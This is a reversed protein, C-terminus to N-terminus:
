SRQSAEIEEIDIIVKKDNNDKEVVTITIMKAKSTKSAPLYFYRSAQTPKTNKANIAKTVEFDAETTNINVSQLTPNTEILNKIVVNEKALESLFQFGDKLRQKDISTYKTTQM